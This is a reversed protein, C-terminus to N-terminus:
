IRNGFLWWHNAGVNQACVGAYQGNTTHKGSESDVTVGSAGVISMAGTSTQKVCITDGKAVPVNSATDITGSAAVSSAYENVNTTNIDTATFTHAGTYVQGAGHPVAVVGSGAAKFTADDTVPVSSSIALPAPNYAGTGLVGSAARIISSNVVNPALTTGTLTGAAAPGSAGAGSASAVGSANVTITSGDPMIGGLVGSAAVPLTYSGGGTSPNAVIVVQAAQVSLVMGIIAVTIVKTFTIKM